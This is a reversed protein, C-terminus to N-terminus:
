SSYFLSKILFRLLWVNGLIFNIIAIILIILGISFKKRKRFHYDDRNHYYESM